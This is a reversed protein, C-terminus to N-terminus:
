NEDGDAAVSVDRLASDNSAEDDDDSDEIENLLNENEKGDDEEPEPPLEKNQDLLVDIINQQNEIATEKKSLDEVNSQYLDLFDIIFGVIVNIIIFETIILFSYFYLRAFLFVFESNSWTKVAVISLNIMDLYGTLNMVALYLLANILDNFHFRIAEDDIEEGGSLEEYIEPYGTNLIGGFMTMGVTAYFLLVVMYISLLDMILPIIHVCTKIIVNYNVYGMLIRHMRVFKLFSFFAWIVYLSYSGVAYSERYESPLIFLINAFIIVGVTSMLECINGFNWFDSGTDFTMNMYFDLAFVFSFFESSQLLDSVNNINARDIAMIPVYTLYFSIAFVLFKYFFTTQIHKYAERVKVFSGGSERKKLEKIKKMARRLKARYSARIAEIRDDDNKMKKEREILNIIDYASSPELFRKEMLKPLANKFIPYKAEVKQINEVYFNKFHFYFVGTVLAMVIISSTLIFILFFFFYVFSINLCEVLIDPFNEMIILNFMSDLSRFFSTFSYAYVANEGGIEVGEFIVRALISFVCLDAFLLIIMATSQKFMKAIKEFAKLISRFYVMVFLIKFMSTFDSKEIFNFTEMMTMVLSICFLIIQLYMKTVEYGDEKISSQVKFVQLVILFYMIAFSIIFSVKPVIFSNILLNYERGEHDVSCEADINDHLEVCWHPKQMLFVVLIAGLLVKRLGRMKRYYYGFKGEIHSDIERNEITGIFIQALVLARIDEEFESPELEIEPEIPKISKFMNKIAEM